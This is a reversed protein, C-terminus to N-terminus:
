KGQLEKEIYTVIKWRDEPKVQAAHSGMVGFGQTIAHYIEGSPRAKFEDTVFSRPPIPYKGSTFLAGKGDGAVGHCAGCYVTYLSKGRELVAPIAEM